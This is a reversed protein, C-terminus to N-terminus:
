PTKTEPGDLVASMSCASTMPACPGFLRTTSSTYRPRPAAGRRRMRMARERRLVSWGAISRYQRQLRHWCIPTALAHQSAPARRQAPPASSGFPAPTASSTSADLKARQRAFARPPELGGTRVRACRRSEAHRSVYGAIVLTGLPRPTSQWAVSSPSSMAAGRRKGHASDTRPPRAGVAGGALALFPAAGRSGRGYTV